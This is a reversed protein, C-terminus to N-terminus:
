RAGSLLIVDVARTTRGGHFRVRSSYRYENGYRDRWQHTVYELEIAEIEYDALSFLEHEESVGDHNGDVWLRLQQFVQDEATIWGDENGGLWEEDFVALARFGNPETSSPQPTFAGFLEHERTIAGDGDRDLVLFATMSGRETWSVIEIDPDDDLDFHVPDDLGSMRPPGMGLNIVIPTCPTTYDGCDGGTHDNLPGEPGKGPAQSIPCVGCLHSHQQKMVVGDTANATFSVGGVSRTGIVDVKLSGCVCGLCAKWACAVGGGCSAAGQTSTSTSSAASKRRVRDGPPAPEEPGPLDLENGLTATELLTEGVGITVNDWFIAEVQTIARSRPDRDIWGFAARYTRSKGDLTVTVEYSTVGTLRALRADDPAAWDFAENLRMTAAKKGEETELYEARITWWPDFTVRVEDTWTARHSARAAVVTDGGPLTVLDVYDMTGFEDRALHVFSRLQFSLDKGSPATWLVLDQYIRRILEELAQEKPVEDFGVLLREPRQAVEQLPELDTAVAPAPAILLLLGVLNAAASRLIKWEGKETTSRQKAILM